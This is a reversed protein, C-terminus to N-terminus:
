QWKENGSCKEFLQNRETQEKTYKIQHFGRTKHRAPIEAKNCKKDVHRKIAISINCTKM